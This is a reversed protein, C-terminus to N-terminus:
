YGILYPNSIGLARLTSVELTEMKQADSESQHDYGLLHLAGHILMHAWHAQLPKNQEAAEREVVAPCVVIDGLPKYTVANALSDPYDSPFSLVNTATNKDRYRANLEASVPETVFSVSVLCDQQQAAAALAAHIWQTCLSEDPAWDSNCDNSYDVTVKM